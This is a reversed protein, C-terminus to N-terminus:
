GGPHVGALQRALELARNLSLHYGRASRSADETAPPWIMITVQSGLYSAETIALELSVSNPDPAGRISRFSLDTERDAGVLETFMIVDHDAPVKTCDFRITVFEMPPSFLDCWQSCPEITIGRENLEERSWHSVSWIPSFGVHMDAHAAPADTAAALSKM